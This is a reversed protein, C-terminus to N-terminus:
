TPHARGSAVQTIVRRVTWRDTAGWDYKYGERGRLFDFERVGERAAQRIFADLLLAGPSEFAFAPDYGSLYASARGRHVFGYLAAATRGAIELTSLRAVGAAHLSPIAARHFSRIADGVLVGPEGRAQWAAAHLRFLEDTFGPVEDPTADVVRVGGHRRARRWAKEVRRLTRPERGELVLVPHPSQRSTSAASADPLDLALAEASDPLDELHISDWSGRHDSLAGLLLPKVAERWAPDVLVDLSDSVSIGIPLLRRGHRGTELYLPALAILEGHRRLAVSFVDGPHFSKWWPVLWGPSQFPTAREARQWLGWWEPLLRLLADDSRILEAEIPSRGISRPANRRATRQGDTGASTMQVEGPGPSSGPGAAHGRLVARALRTAEVPDRYLHGELPVLRPDSAFFRVGRGEPVVIGVDADAVQITFSRM